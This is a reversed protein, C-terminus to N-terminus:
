TGLSNRAIPQLGWFGSRRARSRSSSAIRRQTLNSQGCILFFGATQVGVEHEDVLTPQHHGRQDSPRPSGPSLCRNEVLLRPGMFFHGDDCCQGDRWFVHPYSMVKGEIGVGVDCRVPYDPEKTVKAPLDLARDEYDPVPQHRVAGFGDTTQKLAPLIEMALEQWGVSRLEVRDLMQPTM